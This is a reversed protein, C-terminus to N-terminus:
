IENTIFIIYSCLIYNINIFIIEAIYKKNVFLYYNMIDNSSLTIKM